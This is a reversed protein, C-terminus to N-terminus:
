FGLKILQTKKNRLCKDLFRILKKFKQNNFVQM